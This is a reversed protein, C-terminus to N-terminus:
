KLDEKIKMGIFRYEYINATFPHKPLFERPIKVTYLGSNKGESPKLDCILEPIYKSPTPQKKM